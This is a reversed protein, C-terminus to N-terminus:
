GCFLMSGFHNEWQIKELRNKVMLVWVAAFGSVASCKVPTWCDRSRLFLFYLIWHPRDLVTM